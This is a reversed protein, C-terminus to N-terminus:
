MKRESESEREKEKEREIERITIVFGSYSSYHITFITTCLLEIITKM